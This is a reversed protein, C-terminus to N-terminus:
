RGAENNMKEIANASEDFFAAIENKQDLLQQDAKFATAAERVDNVESEADPFREAQIRELVDATSSFASKLTNAHGTSSPDQQIQRGDEAVQNIASEFDANNESLNRLASSLKVLAEGTAEHDEGMHDKFDNNNVFDVYSVSALDTRTESAEPEEVIDADGPIPEMGPQTSIVATGEELTNEPSDTVLWVIGLIVLIGVIWPWVPKRNKEVHIEAM